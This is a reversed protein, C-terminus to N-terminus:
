FMNFAISNSAHTICVISHWAEVKYWYVTVLNVSTVTFSQNMLSSTFGEWWPILDTLILKSSNNWLFTYIYLTLWMFIFDSMGKWNATLEWEYFFFLKAKRNNASAEGEIKTLEKIVCHGTCWWDADVSLQVDLIVWCFLFQAMHVVNYVAARVKDVTVRPWLFPNHFPSMTTLDKSFLMETMWGVALRMRRCFM